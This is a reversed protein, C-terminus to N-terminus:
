LPPKRFMRGTYDLRHLYPHAGNGSKGFYEDVAKKAGTFHGYDDIIVFGGPSVLPYLIELERRTSEYWDTDLRLLAIKQPTSEGLTKMVDGPVFKLQDEPYGTLSMAKRVEELGAEWWGPSFREAAAQGSVAIADHEGPETMGSFTDYLWIMREPRPHQELLALAALMSSGGKYVGCEVIDGPIDHRCLHEVATYLGLGREPSTLTYPRVRDWHATFEAPADQLLSSLPEVLYGQRQLFKRARRTRLRSVGPFLNKSMSSCRCPSM